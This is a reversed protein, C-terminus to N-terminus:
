TAAQTKPLSTPPMSAPRDRRPSAPDDPQDSGTKTADDLLNLIEFRDVIRQIMTAPDPTHRPDDEMGLCYRYEGDGGTKQDIDQVAEEYGDRKGLEYAEEFEEQSYTVAVSEATGKEEPISPSPSAADCYMGWLKAVLRQVDAPVDDRGAAHFARQEIEWEEPSEWKVSEQVPLPLALAVSRLREIENWLARFRRTSLSGVHSECENARIIELPETSADDYKTM